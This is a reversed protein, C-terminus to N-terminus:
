SRVAGEFFCALAESWLNTMLLGSWVVANVPVFSLVVEYISPSQVNGLGKELGSCVGYRPVLRILWVDWSCLGSRKAESRKKGEWGERNLKVNVKGM